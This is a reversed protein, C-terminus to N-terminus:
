AVKYKAFFEQFFDGVVPIPAMKETVANILSIIWLILTIVSIIWSIIGVGLLYVVISGAIGILYIGLTQRLYFSTLESKEQGNLVFAVVWGILWLHAIMAKVKGTM